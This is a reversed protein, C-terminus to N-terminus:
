TPVIKMRSKVELACIPCKKVEPACNNCLCLHRCPCLVITKPGDLCIVCENGIVSDSRARSGAQAGENAPSKATTSTTQTMLEQVQRKLEAIENQVYSMEAHHTGVLRKLKAIENDKNLLQTDFEARSPQPPPPPPTSSAPGCHVHLNKIDSKMFRLQERVGLESVVEKEPQSPSLALCRGETGYNNVSILTVSKDENTVAQLIGTYRILNNMLLSIKSGIAPYNVIADRLTKPDLLSVKGATVLDGGPLNTVRSDEAMKKANAKRIALGCREAEEIRKAQETLQASAIDDIRRQEAEEVRRTEEAQIAARELREMQCKKDELRLQALNDQIRRQERQQGLDIDQVREELVRQQQQNTYAIRRQTQLEERRRQALAQENSSGASLRLIKNRNEEVLRSQENALQEAVSYFPAAAKAADPAVNEYNIM